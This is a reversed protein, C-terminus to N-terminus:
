IFCSIDTNDRVDIGSFCGDGLADEKIGLFDM